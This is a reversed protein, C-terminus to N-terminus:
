NTIGQAPKQSTKIDTGNKVTNVTNILSNFNNHFYELCTESGQVM